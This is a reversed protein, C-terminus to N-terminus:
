DATFLLTKWNHKRMESANKIQKEQKNATKM